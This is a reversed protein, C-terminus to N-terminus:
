REHHEGHEVLSVALDSNLIKDEVDVDHDYNDSHFSDLFVDLSVEAGQGGLTEKKAVEVSNKNKPRRLTPTPARGRQPTVRAIQHFPGALARTLAEKEKVRYVIYIVGCLVIVGVIAAVNSLSITFASATSSSSGGDGDSLHAVTPEPTTDGDTAVNPLLTSAPTPARTVAVSTVAGVISSVSPMALQLKGEFDVNNLQTSVFSAFEQPL